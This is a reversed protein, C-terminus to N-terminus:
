KRKFNLLWETSPRSRRPYAMLCKGNDELEQWTVKGERVLYTASGYHKNCLGRHSRRNNCGPVLCKAEPDIYKIKGSM